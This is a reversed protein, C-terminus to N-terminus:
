PEDLYEKIQKSTFLYMDQHKQYAKYWDVTLKVMHDLSYKNEFGLRKRTKSTDLKLLNAEHPEGTKCDNAWSAGKKWAVAFRRAMGGVTAVEADSPGFNWAEAFEAGHCYLNDALSMYGSLVDLAHQWPRIAYPNRIHVTEGAMFAKIIDPILRDKAWDGGGIVNGARATAIACKSESFFSRRYASVVLEACGKSSSYPDFGGLTDSERYAWDWEWNEYCKDSTVVVVSRVNPANRVAELLNATGMVNVAYTEIPNAYSERVIAQAALHFVVEACSERLSDTLVKLDRIDETWSVVRDGVASTYLSPSNPALSYGFVEAGLQRLMLSLWAGKFGTHGTIFVRRNEWFSM